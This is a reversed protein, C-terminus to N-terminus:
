GVFASLYELDESSLLFFLLFLEFVILLLTEEKVAGADCSENFSMSIFCTFPTSGLGMRGAGIGPVTGECGFQWDLSFPRGIAAVASSTLSRQGGFAM